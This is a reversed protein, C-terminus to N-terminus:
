GPGDVDLRSDVWKHFDKRRKKTDALWGREAVDVDESCTTSDKAFLSARFEHLANRDYRQVVERFLKEFIPKGASVM